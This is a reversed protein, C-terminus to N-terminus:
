FLMALAQTRRHEMAGRKLHNILKLCDDSELVVSRLGSDIAIKLAHRAAVAEAIDVEM